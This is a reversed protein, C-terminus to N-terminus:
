FAWKIFYKIVSKLHHGFLKLNKSSGKQLNHYANVSTNYCVRKNQKHIRKCIDIDEMYMFYRPDFGKLKIFEDTKYLHCCGHIVDPFFSEGNIKDRYEKSTTYAKFISLFRLILEFFNPFKRASYQIDGNPFVIKPSVLVVQNKFSKILNEFIAGDFYVDPNLVLHYRSTLENLILNHGNGFGLNKKTHIYTIFPYSSFNFNISQPSNDILYVQHLHPISKISELCRILIPINQNFLVISVSITDRTEM